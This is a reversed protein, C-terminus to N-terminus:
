WNIKNKIFIELVEMASEFSRNNPIILDAIHKQPEIYRDYAPIVHHEYRYLVDDLDYGREINDREIRRKIKVHDRADVFIKLDILENLERFQFIFLGELIIVPAPHVEFSDVEVKPNNFNYKERSISEGSLLKNLDDLLGKSDLSDLTDFNSIGERDLPQEEESLYYDDQSIIAIQDKPFRNALESVIKTKGSASGGTIGIIYPKTM